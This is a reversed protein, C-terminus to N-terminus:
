SNVNIVHNKNEYGTIDLEWVTSGDESASVPKFGLTEPYFDKVM